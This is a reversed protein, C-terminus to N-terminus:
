SNLAERNETAALAVSTPGVIFGVESVDNERAPIRAGKALLEKLPGHHAAELLKVAETPQILEDGLEMWCRVGGLCHDEWALVLSHQANDPLANPAEAVVM